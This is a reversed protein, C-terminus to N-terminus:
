ARCLSEKSIGTLIQDCLRGGKLVSSPNCGFISMGARSALKIALRNYAPISAVVRRAESNEFMWRLAGSLIWDSAGWSEPLVCAHVEFCIPNQPLFTFLAVADECSDLALVYWIRPDENVRFDEIKPSFDDGCHRYQTPHTIIARITAYDTTRQFTM